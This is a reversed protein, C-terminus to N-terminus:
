AVGASHDALVEDVMHVAHAVLAPNTHRYYPLQILAILLAWGRARAWTAEDVGTAARFRDRDAAALVDWAVIYDCAPDGVGAASWDIVAHLRGGVLLLNGALLDNHMWVPPGDHEPAALAADWAAIAADTDIWGALQAIAQRTAADKRRLPGGRSAAPGDAPEIAQLALLFGALDDVLVSSGSGPAPPEGDLWRYVSWDWPYGAAPEGIAVPEPTAVPLHPALRPLLRHEARADDSGWGIRPLRVVLDDGLRFLVNVTGSSTVPRIPRGSWQPFQTDLLKAVLDADVDVEGDHLKPM